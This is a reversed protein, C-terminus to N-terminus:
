RPWSGTQANRRLRGTFGAQHRGGMGISTPRGNRDIDAPCASGTPQASIEMRIAVQDLTRRLRRKASRNAVCVPHSPANHVIRDVIADALTPDGIQDHWRDVPIQSTILTAGRGYRDEIIELLNHRQGATLPSLDGTPSVERPPNVRSFAV